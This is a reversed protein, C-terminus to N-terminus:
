LREVGAVALPELLHCGDDFLEDEVAGHGGFQGLLNFFGVVLHATPQHRHAGRRRRFVQGFGGKGALLAGEEVHVPALFHDDGDLSAPRGEELRPSDEVAVVLAEVVELHADGHGHLFHHLRVGRPYHEGQLRHGAGAVPNNDLGDEPQALSDDGALYGGVEIDDGFLAQFDELQLRDVLLRLEDFVGIGFGFLGVDPHGEGGGGLGFGFEAFAFDGLQSLQAFLYFVVVLEGLVDFPSLFVTFDKDDLGAGYGGDPFLGLDLGFDGVRHEEAAFLCARAYGRPRGAYDPADCISLTFVPSTRTASIVVGSKTGAMFRATAMTVLRPPLVAWAAMTLRSSPMGQTTPVSFAVVVRLFPWTIM